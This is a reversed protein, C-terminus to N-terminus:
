MGVKVRYTLRVEQDKALPVDFRITFADVKRFPHSSNVVQWNGFLPEVVGITLERDKHNKLTIEWESEFVRTSLQKYDTQKRQATVDFAEGTKLRILEDKPTHEIRDEGIFQLSGNRDKKYLRMVGAPLPMGLKHEDSNRLTIYVNVPEKRGEEDGSRQMFVEQAGQVLLEAAVDVGRAELLSIQKTQNDQITTRRQLDYLHYEFFGQEQFQSTATPTASKALGEFAMLVQPAEARHVQGAVLKLKADRYATGSRNELTVWGSLDAQSDDESLQLVYDAKWTINQTLYSVEVEHADKGVSEYDWTLTPRAFLNEPLEPLVKVGPHGLYIESGIRFIPQGENNSLLVAEIIEKRDQFENWDVIKIQKGVYKELLKEENILDYDYNQELVTLDGPRNLSKVHVTEPMISSAVDMFQLTGHGPLLEIKRTDKILGLNGNYVTVEVGIQDAATSKAVQQVEAAEALATGCLVTAVVLGIMQRM